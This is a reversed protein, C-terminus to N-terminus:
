EEDLEAQHKAIIENAINAPVQEYRAFELEFSGRGSTMSRLETAYKAMESQPVEANVVQMGEEVGMGLIRGRKHNLDGTIDGMYQDPIMIKVSMIPELIIPKAKSMAERFAMRSAIKFAMENSDVPHHKGDFVTVKIDEVTCGVLPGKTMAEVVGKEVAPIFNKPINGGVVANVFEYGDDNHEVSLQM